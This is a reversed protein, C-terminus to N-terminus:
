QQPNVAPTPYHWSDHQKGTKDEPSREILVTEGRYDIRVNITGDDNTEIVEGPVHEGHATVVLVDGSMQKKAM